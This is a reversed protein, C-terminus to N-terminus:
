KNRQYFDEMLDTLIKVSEPNVANYQSVRIGGLDRYGKIGLIDKEKAEAILKAELEVTPLNFCVNMWSRHKKNDVYGKYFDPYKDIMGYILEAKTRNREEMGKLGGNKLVWKFVKGVVYTAFAPPTNFMSGKKIQNRYDFTKPLKKSIEEAFSKKIVVVTVGAPGINKQAGAYIMDFKSADFERSLFDSSMDSVLATGPKTKPFEWWQTGFITNNSTFHLYKASDSMDEKKIEPLHCYKKDADASTAILNAKGMLAGEEHAREAWKGTVIYDADDGDNLINMPLMTFQHTAGGQLFLVAYDDDLGLIEKLDAEAEDIVAQFEKSRHSIEMVSVGTGKFNLLEAQVEKLVETPLGTPGAFFNHARKEM